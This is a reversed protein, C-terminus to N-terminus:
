PTVAPYVYLDVDFQYRARNTAEEPNWRLGDGTEFAGTVVGLTHTGTIAVMAAEAAAAVDRAQEKTAGWASIEVRPNDLWGPLSPVGGVRTLTLWPWTPSAPLGPGINDGVLDTVDDVVLLYDVVLQEVDALVAVM